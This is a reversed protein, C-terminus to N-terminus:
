FPVDALGEIYRRVVGAVASLDLAQRPDFCEDASAGPSFGRVVENYIRRTRYKEALEKVYGSVRDSVFAVLQEVDDVKDLCFAAVSALCGVAQKELRDVKVSEIKTVTGKLDARTREIEIENSESFYYEFADVVEQWLSSIKQTNESGRVKSTELIRFWESTALQVLALASVRLDDFTDIGYRRLSDRHFRYEVRTLHEPLASGGLVFRRFVEYSEKDTTLIQARKDYIELETTESKLLITEINGTRMNLIQSMKGRCLTVVKDGKMADQFDQVPRELLVQMDVRSIKEDTIRFGEKKLTDKLTTVCDWLSAKALAHFGFRVRVPQIGGQPNSHIYLKIGHHELVFKYKPASGGGSSAGKAWVQWLRGGFDIISKELDGDDAAQKAVSLRENLCLFSNKSWVGDFGAEVGGDYGGYIKQYKVGGMNDAPSVSPVIRAAIREENGCSNHRNNESKIFKNKILTYEIFSELPFPDDKSVEFSEPTYFPTLLEYDYLDARAQLEDKTVQEKAIREKLVDPNLM